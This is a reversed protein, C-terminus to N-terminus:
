ATAGAPVRAPPAPERHVPSPATVPPPPTAVAPLLAILIAVVATPPLTPWALPFLSPNLASANNRGIVIMATATVVGALATCWEALKWPDPRYATRHVRRGGLFLGAASLLV